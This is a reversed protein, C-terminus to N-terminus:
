NGSVRIRDKIKQFAAEKIGSVKMIDEIKTFPGHQERYALISEARSEGIGPLTCLAAKDATNLDVGTDARGSESGEAAGKIASYELLKEQWGTEPAEGEWKEVQERSPITIKMGDELPQAQNLYEGDAEETVGGAARIAEFLRAGEELEYVGPRSVEGSIHIWISVAEKMPQGSPEEPVAPLGEETGASEPPGEAAEASEQIAAPEQPEEEWLLGKKTCGLLFLCFLGIGWSLYWSIKRQKMPM